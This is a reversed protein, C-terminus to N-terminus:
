EEIMKFSTINNVMGIRTGRHLTGHLSIYRRGKDHANIAISYEETSLVARARVVEEDPLLLAFIVEGSRKGDEGVDGNLTEVTGLLTQSEETEKNPRLFQQIRELSSFYEAKFIVRYFIDKPISVNPNSAWTIDITLTSKERVSQMKILADCLNSSIEPQLRNGTLLEELCDSEIGEVLAHSAKMLLHTSKRAFPNHFDFFADNSTVADLPCAIKVVFSGYETQGLRCARVFEEAESRSMRLHHPIPNIVSSASALLAKKAGDLLSVGDELTLTGSSTGESSIKFRIIDSNPTLLDSIVSSVERNETEAIRQVVELIAEAYGDSEQDMPILLQRFTEARKFVWM